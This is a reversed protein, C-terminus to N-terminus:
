NKYIPSNMNTLGACIRLIKDMNQIQNIRFTERLIRFNKLRAIVQEVLIRLNAVRKTKNVAASSMQVAGRLGPPLQLSIQREACEDSINFGKDAQVMDYPDLYDLFNSALTVAKDSARGNYVKSVFTIQSNPAVAILFKGTNYHKYNSWTFNQLIQDEPTKIVIESCDIIARIDPM